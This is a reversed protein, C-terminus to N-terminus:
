APLAAAGSAESAHSFLAIASRFTLKSCNVSALQRSQDHLGRHGGPIGSRLVASRGKEISLEENEAKDEDGQCEAERYPIKDIMAETRNCDADGQECKYEADIRPSTKLARQLRQLAHFLDDEGATIAIQMATHGVRPAQSLDALHRPFQIFKEVHHFGIELIQIFPSLYVM